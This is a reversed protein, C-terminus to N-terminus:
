VLGSRVEKADVVRYRIGIVLMDEVLIKTARTNEPKM